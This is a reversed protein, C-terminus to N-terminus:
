SRTRSAILERLNPVSLRAVGPLLAALATSRRTIPPPRTPSSLRVFLRPVLAKRIIRRPPRPAQELGSRGRQQRTTLFVTRPDEDACDSGARLADHHHMSLQKKLIAAAACPGMVSRSCEARAGKRSKARHLSSWLWPMINVDLPTEKETRRPSSGKGGVDVSQRDEDGRGSPPM